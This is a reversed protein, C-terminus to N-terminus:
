CGPYRNWYRTQQAQQRATGGGWVSVQVESVLDTALRAIARRLELQALWRKPLVRTGHRAGLINGCIAGTSDSDGGHNVALRVAAAFDNEHRLACYVGIALAEEAVWGEGLERVAARPEAQDDIMRLAQRILKTVRRGAVKELNAREVADRVSDGEVLNAIITAFIASSAGAEPHGHTIKSCDMAMEWPDPGFGFPASRMVSGCGKSDNKAFIKDDTWSRLAALCTLGPARRAFMDPERTLWGRVNEEAAYPACPEGQTHLWRQYAYAVVTPGHCVGRTAGRVRARIIGEASYLTMQTDDTIAGVRGYAEDFEQIGDPGYKAQIQAWSLFEVPAGLADGIAGGLLCGKARNILQRQGEKPEGDENEM